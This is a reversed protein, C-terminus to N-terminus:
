NDALFQAALPPPADIADGSREFQAKIYDGVATRVATTKPDLRRTLQGASSRARPALDIHAAAALQVLKTAGASQEADPFRKPADDLPGLSAPWPVNAARNSKITSFGWLGAATAVVVAVILLLAKKM